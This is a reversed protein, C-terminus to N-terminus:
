TQSRRPATAAIQRVIFEQIASITDGIQALEQEGMSRGFISEGVLRLTLRVMQRHVDVPGRKAEDELEVLMEALVEQQLPLQKALRKRRFGKPVVVVEYDVGSRAGPSDSQPDQM